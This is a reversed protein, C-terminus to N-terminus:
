ELLHNGATTIPKFINAMETLSPFFKYSHCMSLVDEQVKRADDQINDYLKKALQERLQEKLLEISRRDKLEDMYVETEVAITVSARMRTIPGIDKSSFQIDDPEIM